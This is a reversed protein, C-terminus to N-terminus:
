SPQKNERELADLEALEQKLEKGTRLRLLFIGIIWLVLLTCVPVFNVSSLHLNRALGIMMLIWSTMALVTPAFLSRLFRRFLRQRRELEGRYFRLGDSPTLGAPTGTPWQGVNAVLWGTLAWMISSAFIIRWGLTHTHLMGYSAIGVTMLALATNGLWERRTKRRLERVKERLEQANLGSPGAPQGQWVTRPDKCNEDLM